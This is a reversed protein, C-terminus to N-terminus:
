EGRQDRELYSKVLYIVTPLVLILLIGIAWRGLYTTNALPVLFAFLAAGIAGVLLALVPPAYVFVWEM